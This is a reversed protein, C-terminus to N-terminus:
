VCLNRSMEQAIRCVNAASKNANSVCKVTRAFLLNWKILTILIYKFIIITLHLRRSVNLLCIQWNNYIARQSRLSYRRRQQQLLMLRLGRNAEVPAIQSDQCLACFLCKEDNFSHSGFVQSRSCENCSSFFIAFLNHFYKRM